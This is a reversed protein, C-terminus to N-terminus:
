DLSDAPAAAAAGDEADSTYSYKYKYYNQKHAVGNLIIKPTKGTIRQLADITQNIEKPSTVQARVVCLVEDASRAILRSDAVILTPPTDVVICDFKEQLMNLNEHFHRRQFLEVPNRDLKTGAGMLRLNPLLEVPRILEPTRGQLLDALGPRFGVDFMTSLDRKRLDADILLVELGSKALSLALQSAISTKGNSPTPSTIMMIRRQMPGPPLLNAHLLRMEEGLIKKSMRGEIGRAASGAHSVTGVVLPQFTNPLDEAFDIKDRLKMLLVLVGMGILFGMGNAALALKPRKDVTPTLPLGPPHPELKGLPSNQREIEEVRMNYRKLEEKAEAIQERLSAIMQSKDGLDRAAVETTEIRATLTEIQKNVAALDSELTEQKIQDKLTTEATYTKWANEHMEKRRAAIQGNLSEMQRKLAAREPHRPTAKFKTELVSDQQAADILQKNWMQIKPDNDTAVSDMFLQQEPPKKEKLAQLQAVVAFKNKELEQLFTKSATLVDAAVKRADDSWSSDKEKLLKKLDGQLGGVGPRGDPLPEGELATKQADRLDTLQKLSERNAKDQREKNDEMYADMVAAVIAKAANADNHTVSIRINQTAPVTEVVVNKQLYGVQDPLERFWAFQMVQSKKAAMQLVGSDKMLDAQTRLYEIYFPTVKENGSFLDVRYPQVEITGSAVFQPQISKYIAVTAPIGILAWILVPVWWYRRFATSLRSAQRAADQGAANQM